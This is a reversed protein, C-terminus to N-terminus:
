FGLDIGLERYNQRFLPVAREVAKALSADDGTSVSYLSICLRHFQGERTATVRNNGELHALLNAVMYCFTTANNEEGDIVSNQDPYSQQLQALQSPILGAIENMLQQPFGRFLAEHIRDDPYGPPFVSSGYDYYWDLLLSVEPLIRQLKEFRERYILATYRPETSENKKLVLSCILEYPSRFLVEPDGPADWVVGNCIEAIDSWNESMREITAQVLPSDLDCGPISRWADPPPPPWKRTQATM